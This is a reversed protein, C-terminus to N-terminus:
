FKAGEPWGDSTHGDKREFRGCGCSVVGNTAKCRGTPWHGLMGHYCTTCAIRDYADTM